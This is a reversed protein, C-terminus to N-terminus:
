KNAVRRALAEAFRSSAHARYRRVVVHIYLCFAFAACGTVVAAEDASRLIAARVALGSLAAVHLAVLVCFWWNM